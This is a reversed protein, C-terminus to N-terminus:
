NAGIATLFTNLRNYLALSQADSLAAGSAGAAIRDDSYITNNRLFTGNAASTGSSATTATSVVSGNLFLKKVAAGSRIAAWCGARSASAYTDNTADGIAYTTTTGTFGPNIFARSTGSAQGVAARRSGSTSQLNIWALITGSNQVFLTSAAWSMGVDLYASTSDGQYGRDVAFVPSNALAVPTANPSHVDLLAAQSSHAAFLYLHDLLAWVGDSKLGVIMDNILGKRTADPQATMAAFYSQADTDYTAGAALTVTAQATGAGSSAGALSVQFTPSASLSGLGGIAGGFSQVLDPAAIISGFGVVNTTLPVAVSLSGGLAGSGLLVGSLTPGAVAGSLSGQGVTDARLQLLTLTAASAVGVGAASVSLALRLTESTRELVISWKGIDDRRTVDNPQWIASGYGIRDNKTPRGPLDSQRVECSIIRTTNGAGQFPDGAVDSWIVGLETAQALGGGTYIVPESFAADVAALAAREAPSM